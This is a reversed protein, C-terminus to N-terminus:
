SEGAREAIEEPLESEIEAAALQAVELDEGAAREEKRRARSRRGLLVAISGVLLGALFSTLTLLSVSATADWALFHVEVDHLNQIALVVVIASLVAVSFYRLRDM